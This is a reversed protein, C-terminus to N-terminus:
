RRLVVVNVRARRPLVRGAVPSQRVIRGARRRQARTRARRHTIRGLTCGARALRRRAVAPRTYVVDPVLCRAVPQPTAAPTPTPAPTATSAPTATAVPTPTPTPTPAPPLSEGPLATAPNGQLFGSDAFDLCDSRGTDYYDDHGPDLTTPTWSGDGAWMLDTPTDSTHGSRWEHPACTPVHGLTHLLEHLMAFELYGPAAGPKAFPNQDCNPTGHLYMAAVHGPLSPPWAGGGCAYTSSGDYYVAYIKWPDKFGLDRLEAELEDRVGAGHAAIQADTSPLRVFTVDLAGGSTDLNLGKGATQGTLWSQWSGVSAALTGNTDLARDTGDAPVAYIVHVQQTGPPLDDARDATARDSGHALAALLTALTAAVGIIAITRRSM